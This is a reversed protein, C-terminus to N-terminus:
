REEDYKNRGVIAAIATLDAGRDRAIQEWRLARTKWYDRDQAVKLAKDDLNRKDNKNFVHWLIIGSLWMFLGVSIVLALIKAGTFLLEPGYTLMLDRM